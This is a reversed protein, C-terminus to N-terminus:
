NPRADETEQVFLTTIVGQFAGRTGGRLVAAVKMVNEKDQTPRLLGLEVMKRGVSPAIEEGLFQYLEQMAAVPAEEPASILDTSSGRWGCNACKIDREGIIFAEDEYPYGCQPCIVM